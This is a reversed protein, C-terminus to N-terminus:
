PYEFAGLDCAGGIPQPRDVDRQDADVLNVNGIDWCDTATDIAPSGALLDCTWTPFNPTVLGTPLSQVLPAAVNTQTFGACSADTSLNNGVTNIVGTGNTRCGPGAYGTAQTIVSSKINVTADSTYIAAGNNGTPTMADCITTFYLNVVGQSSNDITSGWHATTNEAFTVNAAEVTGGMNSIAGGGSDTDNNYFTSYRVTLDGANLIGGGHGLLDVNDKIFGAFIRLDGTNTNLIGNGQGNSANASVTISVLTLWGENRIAGGSCDDEGSNCEPQATTDNVLSAGTHAPAYSGDISFQELWVGPYATSQASEHVHFPRGVEGGGRIIVENRDVGKICIPTTIDLDGMAADDEEPIVVSGGVPVGAPITLEYVGAPVQICTLPAATANAEEIAARLTCTGGTSICFGDGALGEPLDATDDVTFIPTSGSCICPDSPMPVSCPTCPGGCDEGEEDGNEEDDVCTFACDPGHHGTACADCAAGIFGEACVCMGQECARHAGCTVGDCPDAAGDHLFVPAGGPFEAKVYYRVTAGHSLGTLPLTARWYGAGLDAAPDCAVAQWAGHALEYALTVASPVEGSQPGVEVVITASADGTDPSLPARMTEGGIIAAPEHKAGSLLGATLVGSWGLILLSLAAGVISPRQRLHWFALAAMGLLLLIVAWEDMTPINAPNHGPGQPDVVKGNIVCDADGFGGDTVTIQYVGDGDQVGSVMAHETIDLWAWTTAVGGVCTPLYKYLRDEATLAGSVTVQITSSFGGAGTLTLAMLGYPLTTGEPLGDPIEDDTYIHLDAVTAGPAATTVDGAPGPRTEADTTGPAGFSLTSVLRQTVGDAIWAAAITADGASAKEVFVQAQGHANTPATVSGDAAADVLTVDAGDSSFTVDVAAAAEGDGDKLTVTVMARGLGYAIEAGAHTLSSAEAAAAGDDLVTFTWARAQAASEDATTSTTAHTTMPLLLALLALMARAPPLPPRIATPMIM